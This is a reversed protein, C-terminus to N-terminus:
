GGRGDMGEEWGEEDLKMKEKKRAWRRRKRRGPDGERLAAQGGVGEGEERGVGGERGEECFGEM